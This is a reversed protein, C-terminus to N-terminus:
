HESAQQTTCSIYFSIGVWTENIFVLSPLVKILAFLSPIRYWLANMAPESLTKCSLALNLLQRKPKDFAQVYGFIIYLLDENSLADERPKGHTPRAPPKGEFAM